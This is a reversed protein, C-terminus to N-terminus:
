IKLDFHTGVSRERKKTRRWFKKTKALILIRFIFESVVVVDGGYDAIWLWENSDNTTRWDKM